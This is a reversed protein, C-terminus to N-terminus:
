PIYRPKTEGIQIMFTFSGLPPGKGIEQMLSLEYLGEEQIANADIAVKVILSASGPMQGAWDPLPVGDFNKISIWYGPRNPPDITNTDLSFDVHEPINFSVSLRGGANVFTRAGTVSDSALNVWGGAKPNLLIRLTDVKSPQHSRRGQIANQDFTVYALQKAAINSSSRVAELVGQGNLMLGNSQDDMWIVLFGPHPPLDRHDIPIEIIRSGHAPLIMETTTHLESMQNLMMAGGGCLVKLNGKALSSSGNQLLVYLYNTGWGPNQHQYLHTLQADRTRRLWVYPSMLYTAVQESSNNPLQGLDAFNDKIWVKQVNPRCRFAAVMRGQKDLTWKADAYCDNANQPKSGWAQNQDSFLLKRKIGPVVSMITQRQQVLNEVFRCGHGAGLRNSHQCDHDLGLNHGIEHAMSFNNSACNRRVVSFSSQDSGDFINAFGCESGGEVFLCVLDAQYNDRLQGLQADSQLMRLVEQLSQTAHPELGEALGAFVLKFRFPLGAKDMSLNLLGLAELMEGEMALNLMNEDNLDIDHDLGAGKRADDTFLMMLDIEFREAAPLDPCSQAANVQQSPDWQGWGSEALPLRSADIQALTMNGNGCQSFVFDKAKWEFRGSYAGGRESIILDGGGALMQGYWFHQLLDQEEKVLIAKMVGFSVDLVLTDQLQLAEPFFAVSQRAPYVLTDKFGCARLSDAKMLIAQAPTVNEEVAPQAQRCGLVAFIFVLSTLCFDRM